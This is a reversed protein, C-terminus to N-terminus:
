HARSKAEESAALLDRASLAALVLEENAERLLRHRQEYEALTLENHNFRRRQSQIAPAPL